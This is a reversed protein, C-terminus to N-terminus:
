SELWMQHFRYNMLPAWGRFDKVWGKVKDAHGGIDRAYAFTHYGGKEWQIRHMDAMIEFRKADDVTSAAENYLRTYQEDDYRAVNYPGDPIAILPAQDMYSGNSWVQVGFPPTKTYLNALYEPGPVKRVDITIGAAKANEALVECMEVMGSAQPSATLQVRLDSQGAARLLSRAQEIDQVRQEVNVVDGGPYDTGWTDNGLDAHGNFASKVVQERDVVLRIAQRVRVDRFPGSLARTYIQRYAGRGGVFTGFGPTKEIVPVQNYPLDDIADVQGSLLANVRANDDSIGIIQVEDVHAAEGWYDDFRELTVREGPVWDKLKFPGTGIPKKPDFGAPTICGHLRSLPEPFVAFPVKMNVRVTRDDMKKIGNPDVGTLLTSARSAPKLKKKLSAILDDATFNRGDHLLVGERIRITWVTGDDNASLEEALAPEISLDDGRRVLNDYLSHNTAIEMDGTLQDPDLTHTSSDVAIVGIRLVGGKKPTGSVPAGDSSDSTDGSGQGGSGSGGCAALVSALSLTTAGAAAGKLVDKRTLANLVRPDVGRDHSGERM